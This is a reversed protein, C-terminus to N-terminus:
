YLCGPPISPCGVTWTPHKSDTTSTWPKWYEGGGTACPWGALCVTYSPPGHEYSRRVLMRVFVTSTDYPALVAGYDGRTTIVADTNLGDNYCLGHVVSPVLSHSTALKYMMSSYSRCQDTPIACRLGTLSYNSANCPVFSSLRKYIPHTHTQSTSTEHTLIRQPSYWM